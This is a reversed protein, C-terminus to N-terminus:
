TAVAAKLKTKSATFDTLLQKAEEQGRLEIRMAAAAVQALLLQEVTISSMDQAELMIRAKSDLGFRIEDGDSLTVIDLASHLARGNYVTGNSSGVDRLMWSTGTWCIEAHRESVSGDKIVLKSARTRGVTVHFAKHTMIQGKCPGDLIEVSLKTPIVAM